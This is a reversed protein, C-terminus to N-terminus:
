NKTLKAKTIKIERKFDANEKGWGDEKKAVLHWHKKNKVAL